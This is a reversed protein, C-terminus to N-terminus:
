EEVPRIVYTGRQFKDPYCDERLIERDNYYMKKGMQTAAKYIAFAMGCSGYLSMTYEPLYGYLGCGKTYYVDLMKMMTVQMLTMLGLGRYKEIVYGSKAEYGYGFIYGINGVKGTTVIDDLSSKFDRTIVVTWRYKDNIKCPRIDWILLANTRSKDIIIRESFQKMDRFKRVKEVKKGESADEVLDTYTIGDFYEVQKACITM